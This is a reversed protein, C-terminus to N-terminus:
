FEVENGNEITGSIKVGNVYATTGELLHDETATADTTVIYEAPIAAVTVAGTTYVGSAVATQESTSPTITKAAQTTLQKTGSKSGAAVYGESQTATATILGSANVSVNPTAQTATAVSKTAQSAYYGAPVTVTEDSATLDASSKKAISSLSSAIADLGLKSTSGLLRRVQDAIATM